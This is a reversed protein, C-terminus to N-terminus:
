IILDKVDMSGRFNNAVGVVLQQVTFYPAAFTKSERLYGMMFGFASLDNTEVILFDSIAANTFDADYLRINCRDSFHNLIPRVEKEVFSDRETRPMSLWLSTANVLVLITYEM